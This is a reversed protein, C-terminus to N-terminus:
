QRALDSWGVYTKGKHAGVWGWAIMGGTRVLTIAGDICSSGPTTIKELYFSYAGSQGVRTLAGGCKLEPYATEGGNGALKMVVTYNSAGSNQKVAGKWVEQAQVPAVLAPALIIAFGLFLLHTRDRM